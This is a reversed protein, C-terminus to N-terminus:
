GEVRKEYKRSITRPQSHVAQRRAMLGRRHFRDDPSRFSNPKEPPPYGKPGFENQCGAPTIESRNNIIRRCKLGEALKSTIGDFAGNSMVLIIDGHDVGRMVYEVINETSSVSHADKGMRHLSSAIKEVDLREHAPIDNERYPHAILIRDAESFAESYENQFFNRRSTNSRPEFIAWLRRAGFRQRVSEITKKVATPHHAFDDIITVGKAEHVIEQRRRVGTFTSLGKALKESPMGCETLMAISGVANLINHEGWMKM